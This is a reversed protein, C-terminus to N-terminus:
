DYKEFIEWPAHRWCATVCLFTWKRWFLKCFTWKKWFYVCFIGSEGQFASGWIWVQSRAQKIDNKFRCHLPTTLNSLPPPGPGGVKLDPHGLVYQAFLSLRSFTFFFLFNLDHETIISISFMKTIQILQNKLM